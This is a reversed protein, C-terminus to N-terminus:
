DSGEAAYHSDLNTRWLRLPCLVTRQTRRAEATFKSARNSNPQEVGFRATQALHVQNRTKLVAATRALIRNVQSLERAREQLSLEAQKRDSVDRLLGVMRVVQGSVMRVAQGSADYHFQGTSEIWRIEGQPLIVRYEASFQQREERATQIAAEIWPLDVPHVRCAWDEYTHEATGPAYGLLMEQYTNWIILNSSIDWDWMGLKAAELALILREITTQM